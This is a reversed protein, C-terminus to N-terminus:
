DDGETKLHAGTRADYALEMVRGQPTLVKFEYVARGDDDDLEVELLRGPQRTEVAELLTRLPLFDGAEVARHARDHARREHHHDDAVAVGALVGAAAVGVLLGALLRNSLFARFNM